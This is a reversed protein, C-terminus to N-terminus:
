DHGRGRRTIDCLAGSCARDERCEWQGLARLKQKVQHLPLAPHPPPTAPFGHCSSSSSAKPHLHVSDAGDTSQATLSLTATTVEMYPVTVSNVTAAM